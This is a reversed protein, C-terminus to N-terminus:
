YRVKMKDFQGPSLLEKKLDPAIKYTKNEQFEILRAVPEISIKASTLHYKDVTEKPLTITQGRVLHGNLNKVVHPVDALFVIREIQDNPSAISNQVVGYKGANVGFHKWMGRNGPGMDTTVAIVDLGLDFCKKM